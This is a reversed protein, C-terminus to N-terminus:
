LRGNLASRNTIEKKRSKCTMKRFGGDETGISEISFIQGRFKVVHATTWKEVDRWLNLEQPHGGVFEADHVPLLVEAIEIMAQGDRSAAEMSIVKIVGPIWQGNSESITFEGPRSFHVPEGMQSIVMPM